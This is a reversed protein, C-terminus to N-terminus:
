GVKEKQKLKRKNKTVLKDLDWLLGLIFYFLSFWILLWAIWFIHESLVLIIFTLSIPLKFYSSVIKPNLFYAEFASTSFIMLIVFIMAPPWWNLYAVISLPIWSIWMGLIPIYSFIFVIIALTLIYPFGGYFIGIIYFWIMTIIMNIIAIISQAKLILGFSKIVKNFIVEYEKYLFRFNSSKIGSLYKYLNNRDMIFLFSMFLALIVQLFVLSVSKLKDVINLIIEYNDEVINDEVIIAEFTGWIETYWERVIKLYEAINQFYHSLFPINNALGWLEVTLKPLLDSLTFIIIWVFIIYVLVIFFNIKSINKLLSIKPYNQEHNSILLDLRSKLFKSLSLFLYAFIFILLVIGLFDRFFYMFFIFIIYATVNKFFEGTLIVNLIQKFQTM